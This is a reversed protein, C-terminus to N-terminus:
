ERRGLSPSCLRKSRSLVASSRAGAEAQRRLFPFGRCGAARPCRGLHPAPHSSPPPALPPLVPQAFGLVGSLLLPEACGSQSHSAAAGPRGGAAPMTVERRQSVAAARPSRARGRRRRRRRRGKDWTGSPFRGRRHLRGPRPPHPVPSRFRLPPEAPLSGGTPAAEAVASVPGRLAPATALGATTGVLTLAVAGPTATTSWGLTVATSSWVLAKTRSRSASPM